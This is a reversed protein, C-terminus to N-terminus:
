IHLIMEPEGENEYKFGHKLYINHMKGFNDSCDDLKISHINNKKMLQKLKNLLISMLGLNRYIYITEAYGVYCEVNTGIDANIDTQFITIFYKITSVVQDDLSLSLDYIYCHSSNPGESHSVSKVIMNSMMFECNLGAHSNFHTIKTEESLDWFLTM